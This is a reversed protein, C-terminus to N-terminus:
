RREIRLKVPVADPGLEGRAEAQLIGPASSRVTVELNAVRAAAAADSKPLKVDLLASGPTGPKVSSTYTRGAFRSLNVGPQEYLALEIARGDESKARLKVWVPEAGGGSELDARPFRVAHTPLELVVHDPPPACACLAFLLLGATLSERKGLM